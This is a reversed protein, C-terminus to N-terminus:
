EPSARWTEELQALTKLRACSGRSATREGSLHLSSLANEPLVRRCHHSTSEQFACAPRSRIPRSGPPAHLLTSAARTTRPLVDCGERFLPLGIYRISWGRAERKPASRHVM